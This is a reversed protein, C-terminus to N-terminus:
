FCIDFSVQSWKPEYLHVFLVKAPDPHFFRFLCLYDTFFSIHVLLQIYTTQNHTLDHRSGIQLGPLHGIQIALSKRALLTFLQNSNRVGFYVETSKFIVERFSYLIRYLHNQHLVPKISLQRQMNTDATSFAADWSRRFVSKESYWFHVINNQHLITVCCLVLFLFRVCPSIKITHLVPM